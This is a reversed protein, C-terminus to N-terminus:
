LIDSDLLGKERVKLRRDGITEAIPTSFVDLEIEDDLGDGDLAGRDIGEWGDVGV